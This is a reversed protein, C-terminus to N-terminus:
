VTTRPPTSVAAIRKALAQSPKEVFRHLLIAAGFAYLLALCTAIFAGSGLEVAIRMIVYGGVGHVVYLPYSVASLFGLVQSPRALRERALYALLFCALALGYSVLGPRTANHLVGFPWQVFSAALLLGAAGVAAASSLCGRYHANFVVGILMFTIMQASLSLAYLVGYLSGSTTLWGPVLSACGVAFLTLALGAALIPLPHGRRLAPAMVMCLLYFKAEIELTWVIGDISPIWFLDRVMLIQLGYTQWSFPRPMGFFWASVLVLAVTLTLGVAYTPWIRLLRGLAFQPVSRDLLAFPVVFGSILFFLAVGFHGFFAEPLVSKQVAVLPTSLSLVPAAVLRAVEERYAFFGYLFHSAVVSLAAIGRLKDAFQIKTQM